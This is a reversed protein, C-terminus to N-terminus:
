LEIKKNRIIGKITNLVNEKPMPMEIHAFMNPDQISNNNKDLPRIIADFNKYYPEDFLKIRLRHVTDCGCEKMYNDFGKKDNIDTTNKTITVVNPLYIDFEIKEM